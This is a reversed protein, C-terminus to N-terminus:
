AAGVVRDLTPAGHGCAEDSVHDVWVTLVRGDPHRAVFWAEGMVQPPTVWEEANQEEALDALQMNLFTEPDRYM